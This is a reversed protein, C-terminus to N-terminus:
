SPPTRKPTAEKYNDELGGALSSAGPSAVHHLRTLVRRVNPSPEVEEESDGTGETRPTRDTPTQAAPTRRSTPTQALNTGAPPDPPCSCQHRGETDQRSATRSAARSTAPPVKSTTPVTELVMCEPSELVRSKGKGSATEREPTHRRVPTRSREPTHSRDPTRRVPSKGRGFKDSGTSKRRPQSSHTRKSVRRANGLGSGEGPGVVTPPNRVVEAEGVAEYLTGTPSGPPDQYIVRRTTGSSPLLKQIDEFLGNMLRSYKVLIPITKRAEYPEAKKIIEDFLRAKVVAEAPQGVLERIRKFVVTQEAHHKRIEETKRSLEQSMAAVQADLHANETKVRELEQKAADLEKRDARNALERLINKPGCDNLVQNVGRTIHDLRHYQLQLSELDAYVRQFPSELFTWTSLDVNQWPAELQVRSRGAVHQPPPPRSPSPGSCRPSSPPPSGARRSTEPPSGPSYPAAEPFPPDGKTVTDEAMPQVGFRIDEETTILLNDEDVM